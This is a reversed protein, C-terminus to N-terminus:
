FDTFSSFMSMLILNPRACRSCLNFMSCLVPGVFTTRGVFVRSNTVLLKTYKDINELTPWTHGGNIGRLEDDMRAMM